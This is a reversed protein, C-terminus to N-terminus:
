PMKLGLAKVVAPDPVTKGDKKTVIGFNTQYDWMAWGIHHKEFAVRMDHLWQVRMTPNAYYRLVGFEGCYVPAHHLQSWRAAFAMDAEIRQADWRDLGYQEVWYQAALTPEQSLNPQVAEPTSPYPVSRLPVVRPDTWTAGEHTFPFPEYDHFTYIVDSVAIPELALLDELGSWHAGAAIITHNPAEKRIQTGIFSEIGQWRYPDSQEPENMIEFFVLDPDTSSFHKALARWLAAFHDVSETGQFLQAKYSSEPHIDIIVALKQDTVTKVVRDLETMFPNPMDPAKLWALLPVPDISLRIHDFGMRRILAIDDGTTFTRLKEVSYNGPSQAFWMSTNIGRQLHQARQFALQDNTSQGLAPNVLLAASLTMLLAAFFQKMQENRKLKRPMLSTGRKGAYWYFLPPLPSIAANAARDAFARYPGFAFRASSPYKHVTKFSGPIRSHKKKHPRTPPCVIQEISIM